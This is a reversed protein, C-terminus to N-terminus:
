EASEASKGATAAALLAQLEEDTPTEGGRDDAVSYAPCNIMAAKFLEPHAIIMRTTMYGGASCGSVLVKAPDIGYQEIVANIEDAAM